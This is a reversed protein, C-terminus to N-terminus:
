SPSFANRKLSVANPDVSVRRLQAEEEQHSLLSSTASSSESRWHLWYRRTSRNDEADQERSDDHQKQMM